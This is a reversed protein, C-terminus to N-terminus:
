FKLNGSLRIPVTQSINNLKIVINAASLQISSRLAKPDYFFEEIRYAIGLPYPLDHQM